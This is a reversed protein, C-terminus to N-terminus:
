PYGSNTGSGIPRILMGYTDTLRMLSVIPNDGDIDGINGVIPLGPPGPLPEYDM